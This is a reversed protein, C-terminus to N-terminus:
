GILRYFRFFFNELPLVELDRFGAELAYGRLTSPRMVTGTGVSPQDAMGVPLCHFISFGYLLRELDGANPDFRESAREDVVLVNGDEGALRRMTRLAGVPDSMDHVCEFAAALDYRGALAPDGADRLSVSVRSGVGFQRIVDQAAEVSAPDLDFGEVTANPYALAIGVSSYGVGCGIDAVRAGAPSSLRAHVDPIAPLYERGLQQLFMNRNMGAQGDRLDLGYDEYPVGGGTRFAEIVGDVPKVAGVAIQALPALFNPDDVDVLVAGHGAPLAFRRDAADAEANEVELIGSVAQYELWERLYRESLTTAAALEGATAPEIDALSAYLGLKHGVHVAYIDWMGLAAGLLKETLADRRTAAEIGLEEVMAVM